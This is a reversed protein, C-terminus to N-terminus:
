RSIEEAYAELSPSSLTLQAMSGAVDYELVKYQHLRLLEQEVDDADMLFLRWDASTLAQSTTYGM